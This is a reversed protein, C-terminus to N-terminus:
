RLYDDQPYGQPQRYEDQGQNRRQQPMHNQRRQPQNQPTAPQQSRQVPPNQRPQPQNRQVTPTTQQKPPQSRQVPPNQPQTPQNRQVPQEKQQPRMRSEAKQGMSSEGTLTSWFSTTMKKLASKISMVNKKTDKSTEVMEGFGYLVFSVTLALVIGIIAFVIGPISDIVTPGKRNSGFVIATLVASAPSMNFVFGGGASLIIGFVLLFKALGKIKSGINNYM